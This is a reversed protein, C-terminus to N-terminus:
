NPTGLLVYTVLRLCLAIIIGILYRDRVVLKKELKDIDIKNQAIDKASLSAKTNCSNQCVLLKRDVDGLKELTKNLTSLEQQMLLQNQSLSRIESILADIETSSM